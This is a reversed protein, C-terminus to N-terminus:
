WVAPLKALCKKRHWVAQKVIEHFHHERVMGAQKDRLFDEIERDTANLSAWDFVELEDPSLKTLRETFRHSAHFYTENASIRYDIWLGSSYIRRLFAPKRWMEVMVVASCPLLFVSNLLGTGEAGVLITTNYRVLRVQEALSMDEFSVRQVTCSLNRAIDALADVNMISRASHARRDIFTVKCAKQALYVERRLEYAPTVLTSINRAFESWMRPPVSANFLDLLPPASVLVREFCIRQSPNYELMDRLMVRNESLLSFMEEYLEGYRLLYSTASVGPVGGSTNRYLMPYIVADVPSVRHVSMLYFLNSFTNLLAHGYQPFHVVGFIVHTGPLFLDCSCTASTSVIRLPPSMAVSDGYGVKYANVEVFVQLDISESTPSPLLLAHEHLIAGQADLAVFHSSNIVDSRFSSQTYANDYYPTLGYDLLSYSSVYSYNGCEYYEEHSTLRRPELLISDCIEEIFLSTNTVTVYSYLGQYHTYNSSPQPIPLAGFIPITGTAEVRYGLSSTTSYAYLVHHESIRYQMTALYSLILHQHSLTVAFLIDVDHHSVLHDLSACVSVPDYTYREMYRLRMSSLIDDQMTHTFNSLIAHLALLPVHISLSSTCNTNHAASFLADRSVFFNSLLRFDVISGFSYIYTTSGDVSSSTLYVTETGKHQLCNVSYKREALVGILLHFLLVCSKWLSTM